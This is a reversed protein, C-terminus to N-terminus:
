YWCLVISKNEEEEEEDGNEEEQKVVVEREGDLDDASDRSGQEPDEVEEAEKKAM